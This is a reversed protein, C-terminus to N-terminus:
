QHAVPQGAASWATWGGTFIKVQTFGLSLLASAVMRSDHCEGGSCYVIIPANKAKDLTQRLRLYDRAFNERAVNLAGPVHGADYFSPGRADLILTKHQNVAERFEDLSVTELDSLKFAPAQILQNLDAALRQEPSHYDLSLPSSRLQNTMLGIALSLVALGAVLALDRGIRVKGPSMMM